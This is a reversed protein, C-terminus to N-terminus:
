WIGYGPHFPLAIRPKVVRADRLGEERDRPRHRRPDRRLGLAPSSAKPGRRPQARVVPHPRARHAAPAAHPGRAPRRRRDPYGARRTRDRLVPRPTRSHHSLRARRTDLDGHLAARQRRRGALFAPALPDHAPESVAQHLIRRPLEGVRGEARRALRRLRRDGQVM